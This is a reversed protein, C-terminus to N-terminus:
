SPFRVPKIQCSTCLTSSIYQHATLTAHVLSNKEEYWSFLLPFFPFSLFHLLDFLRINHFPRRERSLGRTDKLRCFTLVFFAQATLKFHFFFFFLFPLMKRNPQYLPFHSVTLM